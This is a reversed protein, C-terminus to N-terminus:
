PYTFITVDKHLKSCPTRIKDCKKQKCKYIWCTEKQFLLFRNVHRLLHLLPLAIAFFPRQKSAEDNMYEHRYLM